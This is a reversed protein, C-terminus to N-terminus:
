KEKKMGNAWTTTALHEVLPVDARDWSTANSALLLPPSDLSLNFLTKLAM